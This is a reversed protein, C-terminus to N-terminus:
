FPSALEVHSSALRTHPQETTVSDLAHRADQLLNSITMFALSLPQELAAIQSQVQAERRLQRRLASLLWPRKGQALNYGAVIDGIVAREQELTDRLQAAAPGLQARAREADACALELREHISALRPAFQEARLQIFDGPVSPASQREAQTRLQASHVERLPSDHAVLPPFPATSNVDIVVSLYQGWAHDEGYGTDSVGVSEVGEDLLDPYQQLLRSIKAHGSNIRVESPSAIQEVKELAFRRDIWYPSAYHDGLDRTVSFECGDVGLQEGAYEVIPQPSASTLIIRINPCRERVWDLDAREIVQLPAALDWVQKSLTRLTSKPLSSIAHLLATQPLRQVARMPESGFKRYSWRQLLESRAALKGWLLYSLGPFAWRRAGDLMYGALLHPRAPDHILRGRLRPADALASLEPGFYKYSAIEWGLLEGLNLGRHTTRDMDLLLYRTDRRLVRACLARFDLPERHVTFRDVLRTYRGRASLGHGVVRAADTRLRASGSAEVRLAPQEQSGVMEGM